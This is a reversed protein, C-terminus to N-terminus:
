SKMKSPYKNTKPPPLYTKSEQQPSFLYIKHDSKKLPKSEKSKIEPCSSSPIKEQIKLSIFLNNIIAMQRKLSKKGRSKLKQPSIKRTIFLSLSRKPTGLAKIQRLLISSFDSLDM